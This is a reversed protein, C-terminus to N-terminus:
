CVKECRKWDHDLIVVNIENITSCTINMALRVEYAIKITKSCTSWRRQCDRSLLESRVDLDKSISGFMDCRKTSNRSSSVAFRANEVILYVAEM